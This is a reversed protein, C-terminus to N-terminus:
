RTAMQREPAASPIEEQLAAEAAALIQRQLLVVPELDTRGWYCRLTRGVHSDSTNLQLAIQHFTKGRLAFARLLAEFTDPRMVM